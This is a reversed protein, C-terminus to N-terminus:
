FPSRDDWRRRLRDCRLRHESEVWSVIRVESAMVLGYLWSSLRFRAEGILDRM